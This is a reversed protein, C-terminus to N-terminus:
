SASRSKAPLPPNKEFQKAGEPIEVWPQKSSTWVHMAPALGSTDDLTGPKVNLTKTLAAPQNYIRAGCDPCFICLVENGSDAIRTFSRTEGQTLAFEERRVVLTMGFASGTQKQCESCHCAVLVRPEGTIEYRVAGCACGGIQGM